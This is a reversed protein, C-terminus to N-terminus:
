KNSPSNNKNLARYTNTQGHCNPCLIMLNNLKNNKNDGDIHHIELVIKENLWDKIGCIECKYQKIGHKFLKKKLCASDIEKGNFVEELSTYEKDRLGQNTKYCGLKKAKRSFTMFPINLKIAAQRMSISDRCIAIFEEENIKRM